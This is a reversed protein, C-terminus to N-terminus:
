PRCAVAIGNRRVIHGLQLGMWPTLVNVEYMVAQGEEEVQFVHPTLYFFSRKESVVRGDYSVREFGSWLSAAIEIRHEGVAVAMARM